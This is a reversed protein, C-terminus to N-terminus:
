FQKEYRSKDKLGELDYQEWYTGGVLTKRKMPDKGLLRMLLGAPVFILVFIVTLLIQTNIKGIIHAVKLWLRFVPRLTLPSFAILPLILLILAMLVYSVISAYYRWAFVAFLVSFIFFVIRIDRREKILELDKLKPKNVKNINM